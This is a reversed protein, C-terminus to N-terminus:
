SDRPCDTKLNKCSINVTASRQRKLITDYLFAGPINHPLKLNILDEKSNIKKALKESELFIDKNFSKPFYSINKIGISNLINKCFNINCDWIFAHEKIQSSKLASRILQLRYFYGLNYFGGDLLLNKYKNRSNKTDNFIEKLANITEKNKAPEFISNGNKNIKEIIKQKIRVLM